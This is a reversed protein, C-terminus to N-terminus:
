QGKLPDKKLARQPAADQRSKAATDLPFHCSRVHRSLSTLEHAMVAGWEITLASLSRVARDFERLRLLLYRSPFRVM